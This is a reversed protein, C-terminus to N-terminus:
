ISGNFLVPILLMAKMNLEYKEGFIYIYIFIYICLSSSVRLAHFVRPFLSYLPKTPCDSPFFTGSTRHLVLLRSEKSLVRVKYLVAGRVIREEQPFKKGPLQRAVFPPSCM